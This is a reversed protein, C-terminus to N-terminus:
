RALARKDRLQDIREKLKDLGLQAGTLDSAGLVVTNAGLDFPDVVLHTAMKAQISRMLM